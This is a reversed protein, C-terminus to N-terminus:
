PIIVIIFCMLVNTKKALAAKNAPHWAGWAEDLELTVFDDLLEESALM